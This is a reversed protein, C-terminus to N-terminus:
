IILEKKFVDESIQRKGSEIEKIMSYVKRISPIDINSKESYNTLEEVVCALETKIGNELNALASSKIHGNNHKLLMLIKRRYLKGSITDKCFEDYNLQNNYPLININYKKIVNVAEIILNEFLKKGHKKSLIEGLSLGSIAGLSSIAFNIVNRGMIFGVIDKTIHVECINKLINSLLIMKSYADRDYIGLNIGNFNKVYFINEINTTNFDLIACIVKSSPLVKSIKNLSYVNQITVFCGDDCLKCKAREILEISDYSKTTIFIFDLNESLEEVKTNTKILYNKDGFDGKITYSYNDDIKVGRITRAVLEVDYGISTLAVALTVGISGGGIIGIKCTKNEM